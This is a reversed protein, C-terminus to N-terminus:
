HRRFQDEAATANWTVAAPNGITLNLPLLSGSVDYYRVASGENFTYLVLPASGLLSRSQFTGSRLLSLGAYLSAEINCIRAVIRRVTRLIKFTYLANSKNISSVNTVNPM